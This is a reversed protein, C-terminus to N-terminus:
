PRHTRMAGVLAEFMLAEGGVETAFAAAREADGFAALGSGMPTRIGEARVYHATAGDIWAVSDHDHVYWRQVVLDGNAAHYAFMDGIDDFLRPESRGDIEVITAAAFREESLIMGCHDCVDEGYVVEPPALPDAPPGCATTALALVIAAAALLPARVLTARATTSGSGRSGM